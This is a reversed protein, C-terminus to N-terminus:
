GALARKMARYYGRQTNAPNRLTGPHFVSRYKPTGDPNVGLDYAPDRFEIPQTGVLAARAALGMHQQRIFARLKKLLKSNM